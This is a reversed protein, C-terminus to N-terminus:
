NNKKNKKKSLSSSILALLLVFCPIIAIKGLVSIFAINVSFSIIIFIIGIIEATWLSTIIDAKNEQKNHNTGAKQISRCVYCYKRGTKLPRGCVECTRGM